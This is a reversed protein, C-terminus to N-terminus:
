LLLDINNRLFYPSIFFNDSIKQMKIKDWFINQLKQDNENLFFKNEALLNIEKAAELIQNSDNYIIKIKNRLFEDTTVYKSLNRGTIKDKKFNPDIQDQFSIFKKTVLDLYNNPLYICKHFYHPIYSLQISNVCLMPVRFFSAIKDLGSGTGVFFKSKILLYIDLEESIYGSKSYDVFLNHDIELTKDTINGVRCNLYKKKIFSNITPKFVEPSFDRYDHYTWNKNKIQFNKYSSDRNCYTILNQNDNIKLSSIFKNYKDEFIIKIKKNISLAQHRLDLNKYSYNILFNHNNIPILFKNLKFYNFFDFSLSFFYHFPIKFINYKYDKNNVESLILKIFTRNYKKSKIISISAYNDVIFIDLFKDHLGKRKEYIYIEIFQSAGLFYHMKYLRIKIFLSIAFIFISIFFGLLLKFSFKFYNLIKIM